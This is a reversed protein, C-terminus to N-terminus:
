GRRLMLLLGAVFCIAIPGVSAYIPDFGYVLSSPGLIDQLTRFIIGVMVGVFIRYGM